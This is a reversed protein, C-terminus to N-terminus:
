PGLWMDAFVNPRIPDISQEAFAAHSPYVSGRTGIPLLNRQFQGLRVHRYVRYEDPPEIALGANRCTDDVRM